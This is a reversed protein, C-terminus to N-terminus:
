KLLPDVHANYNVNAVNGIAQKQKTKLRKIGVCNANGWTIISYGIHRKVLSNYITKRINLLLIQKLQNLAFNASSVKNILHNINKGWTLHEDLHVVVSKFSKTNFANGIREVSQDGIKILFDQNGNQMKNTRFVM